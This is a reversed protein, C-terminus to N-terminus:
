VDVGLYARKVIDEALVDATPGYTLFQGFDLVLTKSCTALILEVDHDILLIQPGFEDPIALLTERLTEGESETMGAGPEDFLLLRPAGVLGRAIELMRRQYLNLEAGMRHAERDLGVFHLAKSVQRRAEARAVGLHDLLALVNDYVSLDEVVQETQFSRRLGLDVRRVPSLSLLDTGDVDVRGAKPTIFGSLVNLLTTKGAGNPGILGCIKADLEVNLDDLPKVAGFQVTLNEIRIM